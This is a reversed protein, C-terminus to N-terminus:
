NAKGGSNYADIFEELTQNSIAGQSFRNLSRLVTYHRMMKKFMSGDDEMGCFIMDFAEPYEKEIREFMECGMPTSKVDGITSNKELEEQYPPDVTIGIKAKLHIDASSAGVMVYHDPQDVVFDARKECYHSFARRALVACVGKKEGKKLKIKGFAFLQKVPNVPLTCDRQAALGTYVQWAEQGDFEGTNKISFRVTVNDGDHEVSIGSYVFSTYSLGFGFPFLPKIKKADYYRYGVFSSEGYVTDNFLGPFYLYSPNHELVAPYTEALKGSFNHLGFLLSCIAGPGAQGFLSAIVVAKVESLWPMTVPSGNQLVVMVNKNVAAIEKILTNHSEPLELDARDYGESEVISPLGAVIIVNHASKAIELAEDLLARNTELADGEYGRAFITKRGTIKEAEQTMTEVLQPIVHSSGGAGMRPNAAFDGIVTFSAKCDLPLMSDNKLLVAGQVVAEKAVEHGNISSDHDKHRGTAMVTQLVRSVCTDLAEMHCRGSLIAEKLIEENEKGSYPMELDMGAELCKDRSNTAGWDSVVLGKYGWKDRLIETLFRKSECVYESNLRNYSCMVTSPSSDELAYEFSALYIEHLAKEDIVANVCLRRHEQNNALFHKLSTGVGRSEVGNILAAAMKGSLYPDESFYEFNRGCVPSRKINAGPGLVIDVQQEIADNAISEGVKRVMDTDWTSALLAECPYSVAPLTKATGDEDSFKRLGAPGDSLMISPIGLRPVASTHWADSGGVLSIKEELTLESLLMDIKQNM